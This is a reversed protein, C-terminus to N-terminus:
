GHPMKWEIPVADVVVFALAYPPEDSISV